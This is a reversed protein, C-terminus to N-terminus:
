STSRLDPSAWVFAPLALKARLKARVRIQVVPLVLRKSTNHVVFTGSFKEGLERLLQYMRAVTENWFHKKFKHTKSVGQLIILLVTRLLTFKNMKCRM